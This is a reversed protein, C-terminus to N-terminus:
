FTNSIFSNFLLWNLCLRQSKGTLLQEPSDPSQKERRAQIGEGKGNAVMMQQATYHSGTELCLDERSSKDVVWCTAGGSSYLVFMMWSVAYM